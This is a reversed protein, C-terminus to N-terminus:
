LVFYLKYSSTMALLMHGMPCLIGLCIGGSLIRQFIFRVFNGRSMIGGSLIGSYLGGSESINCLCPGCITNLRSCRKFIHQIATETDWFNDEVIRYVTINHLQQYAINLVDGSVPSATFYSVM